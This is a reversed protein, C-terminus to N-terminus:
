IRKLLEVLGAALAGGVSGGLGGSVASLRSTRDILRKDEVELATVRTDLVDIRKGVRDELQTMRQSQSEELRRIDSKIDDIRAFVGQQM